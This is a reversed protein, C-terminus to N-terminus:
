VVFEPAQPEGPPSLTLCDTSRRSRPTPAQCTTCDFPCVDGLSHSLQASQGAAREAEPVQLPSWRHGAAVRKHGRSRHLFGVEEALALRGWSRGM